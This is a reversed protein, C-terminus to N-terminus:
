VNKIREVNRHDKVINLDKLEFVFGNVRAKEVGDITTIHGNICWEGSPAITMIKGNKMIEKKMEKSM